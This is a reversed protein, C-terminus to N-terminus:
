KWVKWPARGSKWMENLMSFERYTDMPQWFGDHKYAMLQGDSALAELPAQELVCDDDLYDFVEPEFVFFGANVYDDTLPKERFQLVKGDDNLDMVGFRSLPRVTTVTALKGHALHFDLLKAIDVDALGDGYTVMFRQSSTYPRARKVRGGTMTEAGTDVVTVKWSGEEHRDHYTISERDGLTISFDSNRVEYNLFYDKIVEGKYGTCVVFENLGFSAFNKMIHWLVPKGGVEVMPKPRYETEERLRTGLGGALLIIKL